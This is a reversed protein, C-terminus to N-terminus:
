TQSWTSTRPLLSGNACHYVQGRQSGPSPVVPLHACFDRPAVNEAAGSDLVSERAGWRVGDVVYQAGESKVMNLEDDIPGHEVLGIPSKSVADHFEGLSMKKM